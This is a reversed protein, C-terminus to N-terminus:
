QNGRAPSWVRVSTKPHSKCPGPGWRMSHESWYWHITTKAKHGEVTNNLCSANSCISVQLVQFTM